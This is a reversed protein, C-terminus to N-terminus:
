AGQKGHKSGAGGGRGLLGAVLGGVKGGFRPEGTKAEDELQATEGDYSYYNYQMYRYAYNYDLQHVAFKTLAAGVV